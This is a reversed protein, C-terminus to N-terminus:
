FHGPLEAVTLKFGVQVPGGKLVEGLKVSATSAFHIWESFGRAYTISLVTDTKVRAAVTQNPSIATQVGLMGTFGGDREVELAALSAESLRYSASGKLTYHGRAHGLQLFAHHRLNFWWGYVSLSVCRFGNLYCASDFGGGFHGQQGAVAVTALSDAALSLSKHLGYDFNEYCICATGASSLDLKVVNHADLAYKCHAACHLQAYVTQKFLFADRVLKTKYFSLNEKAVGLKQHVSLTHLCGFNRCRSKVTFQQPENFSRALFDVQKKLWPPDEM